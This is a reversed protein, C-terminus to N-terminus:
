KSFVFVFCFIFLIILHFLILLGILDAIWRIDKDQGDRCFIKRSKVNAEEGGGGWYKCGLGLRM